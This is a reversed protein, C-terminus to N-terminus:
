HLSKGRQILRKKSEEYTVLNGCIDVMLRCVKLLMKRHVLYEYGEDPKMWYHIISM